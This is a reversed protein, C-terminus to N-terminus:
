RSPGYHTQVAREVGAGTDEREQRDCIRACVWRESKRAADSEDGDAAQVLLADGRAPVGATTWESPTSGKLHLAGCAQRIQRSSCVIGFGGRPLLSFCYELQSKNSRM